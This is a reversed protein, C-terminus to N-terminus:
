YKVYNANRGFGVLRFNGTLVRWIVKKTLLQCWDFVINTTIKMEPFLLALEEINRLVAETIGEEKGCIHCVLQERDVGKPDIFAGCSVCNIGKKMQEFRYELKRPFPNKNIHHSALKKAFEMHKETLNSPIVDLSDMLRQIQGPYYISFNLPAHYLHYHPNVYVLFSKLPLNCGIDKLLQRYLPDSREMQIIPDKVEGGALTYWRGDVYKYDGENNKVEYRYVTNQSILTSDIQFLTNNYELLLDNLCLFNNNLKSLWNDFMLEGKYGKEQWLFYNREQVSLSMRANLIRLKKLEESEVRAKIVELM